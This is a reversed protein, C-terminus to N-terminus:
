IGGGWVDPKVSIRPPLTTKVKVQHSNLLIDEVKRPPIIPKYNLDVKYSM